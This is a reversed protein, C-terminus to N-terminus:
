CLVCNAGCGLQASQRALLERGVAPSYERVAAELRVGGGQGGVVSQEGRRQWGVQGGRGCGDNLVEFIKAYEFISWM